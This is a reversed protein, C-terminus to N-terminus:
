PHRELRYWWTEIRDTGRTADRLTWGQFRERLEEASTGLPGPRMAGRGFGFLLVTAGPEAARTVGDAYADRRALPVGHYCGLDLFLRYGGGVGLEPLRTVDGQVFRPSVAAAQAKRRAARLPRGVLDVATVEWGHRALYVANTGTGCGLDIARGPQLANPGDVASVLEPPPVGSDWPKFGVLYFFRYMISSANM